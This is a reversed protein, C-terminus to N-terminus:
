EALDSCSKLPWMIFDCPDPTPCPLCSWAHAPPLSEQDWVLSGAGCPKPLGSSRARILHPVTTTVSTRTSPLSHSTSQFYSNQRLRQAERSYTEKCSTPRRSPPSCTGSLPAWPLFQFWRQSVHALFLRLSPALFRCRYPRLLGAPVECVHHWRGGPPVGDGQLCLFFRAPSGLWGPGLALCHYSCAGRKETFRRGLFSFSAGRNAGSAGGGSLGRGLDTAAARPRLPPTALAPEWRNHLQSASALRLRERCRSVARETKFAGRNIGM